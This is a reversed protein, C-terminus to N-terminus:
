DLFEYSEVIRVDGEPFHVTQRREVPIRTLPSIWYNAEGVERGDIAIKFRISRGRVKSSPDPASFFFDSVQVWAEIGGDAHDPPKGALLAVLNHLLGTRTFGKVIAENLAKPTPMEYKQSGISWHMTRADSVFRATVPKSQFNGSYEIDVKNGNRLHLQGKLSASLSGESTIKFKFRISRKGLLKEELDRFM